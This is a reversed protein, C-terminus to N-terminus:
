KILTLNPLRCVPKIFAPQKILSFEDSHNYQAYIDKILDLCHFGIKLFERSHDISNVLLDSNKRKSAFSFLIHYGFERHIMNVGTDIGNKVQLSNKITTYFRRDYCQDWTYFDLNEYYTPSITGNYLYTGDQFIKYVISPNYSIVSMEGNPDVINISFHDIDNLGIIENYIQRIRWHNKFSMLLADSHLKPPKHLPAPLRRTELLM